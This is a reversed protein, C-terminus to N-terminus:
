KPLIARAPERRMCEGSGAAGTRKAYATFDFSTTEAVRSVKVYAFYHGGMATGFHVLVSFLEYVNADPAAPPEFLFPSMDLTDPFSVADYLKVRRQLAFDYVFRCLAYVCEPGCQYM